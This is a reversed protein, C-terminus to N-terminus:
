FPVDWDDFADDIEVPKPTPAPAAEETTRPSVAGIYNGTKDDISWILIKILMTKGTLVALSENTPDKDLKALKGGANKDINALMAKAKDAKKPNSDWVRVKQFVKRNKYAEPKAVTWEVNIYEDGNYQEISPKTIIALATTGDPILEYSASAEFKGTAETTASKGESTQWFSM